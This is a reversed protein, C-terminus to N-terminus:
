GQSDQEAAVAGAVGASLILAAPLTSDALHAAAARPLRFTAIVEGADDQAVFVIQDDPAPYAAAKTAVPAADVLARIEDDNM